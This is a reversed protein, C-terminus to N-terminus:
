SVPGLSFIKDLVAHYQEPLPDESALSLDLDLLMGDKLSYILGHVKVIQGRKWASRLITTRCVNVVQDLVNMECFRKLAWDRDDAPGNAFRFLNRHYSDRMHLLWNDILGLEARDLAAGVGGCGYHGCVIIDTVQLIDVAYQIVSLVNLDTHIVQNAINRHVFVEGPDLGIIQNAPVRSDSCGIWLLKPNQQEALRRFFGEDSRTQEAMWRRNNALLPHIM